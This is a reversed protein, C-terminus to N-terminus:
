ECGEKEDKIFTGDVVKGIRDKIEDYAFRLCEELTCDIEGAVDNCDYIVYSIYRIQDEKNNKLMAEALGGVIQIPYVEEVISKTCELYDIDLMDCLLLIVVNMDGIAYKVENKNEVVYGDVMEKYEECLKAFQQFKNEPKVFGKEKGWNQVLRILEKMKEKKIELRVKQEIEIKMRAVEDGTMCASDFCELLEEDTCEKYESM